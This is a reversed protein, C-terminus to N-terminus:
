GHLGIVRSAERHRQQLEHISDLMKPLNVDHVEVGEGIAKLLTITL